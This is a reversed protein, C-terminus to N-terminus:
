QSEDNLWKKIPACLCAAEEHTNIGIAVPIANTITKKVSLLVLGGVAFYIKHGLISWFDQKLDIKVAPVKKKLFFLSYIFLFLFLFICFYIIDPISPNTGTITGLKISPSSNLVLIGHISFKIWSFPDSEIKHIKVVVLQKAGLVGSLNNKKGSCYFLKSSNIIISKWFNRFNTRCIIDRM